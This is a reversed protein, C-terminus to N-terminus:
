KRMENENPIRQNKENGNKNDVNVLSNSIPFVLKPKEGIENKKSESKDSFVRVCMKGSKKLCLKMSENKKESEQPIIVVAFIEDLAELSNCLAKLEILKAILFNGFYVCIFYRLKEFTKSVSETRIFAM